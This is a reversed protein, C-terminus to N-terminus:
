SLVPIANLQKAQDQYIKFGIRIFLVIDQTSDEDKETKLL